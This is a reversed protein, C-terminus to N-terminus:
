RQVEAETGTLYRVLGHAQVQTRATVIGQALCAAEIETLCIWYQPGTVFPQWPAAHSPRKRADVRAALTSRLTQPM